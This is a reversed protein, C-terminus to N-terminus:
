ERFFLALGAFILIALWLLRNTWVYVENRRMQQTVRPVMMAAVRKAVKKM